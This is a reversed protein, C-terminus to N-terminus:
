PNGPRVVIVIPTRNVVGQHPLRRWSGNPVVGAEGLRDADAELALLLLNVPVGMVAQNTITGSGGFSSILEVPEGQTARWRAAFAPFVDDTIARDLISFGYFVVTKPSAARAHLPLWPWLGYLLLGGM